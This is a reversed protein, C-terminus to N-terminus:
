RVAFRSALFAYVVNAKHLDARYFNGTESRVKSNVENWLANLRGVLCQVPGVAMGIANAGFERAAM